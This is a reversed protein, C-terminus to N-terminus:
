VINQGRCLDEAWNLGRGDAPRLWGEDQPNNQRFNGCSLFRRCAAFFSRRAKKNEYVADEVPARLLAFGQLKVAEQICFV